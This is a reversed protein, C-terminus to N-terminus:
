RTLLVFKGAITTVPFDRYLSLRKSDGACELCVVACPQDPVPPWYRASANKVGTHVFLVKPNRERLLAQLPYELQFDTIDIGIIGCKVGTLQAVTQRYSAANDWQKMDAFYQTDRNAHLVSAAGRLPRVWNELAPLRAGDLLLLCVALQLITPTLLEEIYAALPSGLVFLPLMLRAMFPQWKLYGCYAVFGCILAAVYLARDYRHRRFAQFLAVCGLIALILLALRNPADAEHNANRPPRYTSGPWTTVPDNIDIGLARHASNVARFVFSNWRETRGGLQESANRLINSLTPKLGFNENRWRFVGDEQASDFGMIAGSLNYNRVYQPTNLALALCMAALGVSVFRRPTRAVAPALVAILIWPAFLYATAKTNLALGCATGLFIADIWRASAALRFAFYVAAVLWMAMFYDNKAGSSALIGSPLVACFLAAIWQGRNRAGLCRAIASVGIVCVASAGWQVFNIVRDGASLVYTHLMLYEALPQLMIQNLYPTPFFRVSAQEAWYVVRPMHYAMADASNPPSSAATVATLGLITVIGTACLLVVPDFTFAPLAIRFAQRVPPVSLAAAFVLIWTVILPGRTIDAFASLTETILLLAVGFIVVGRLFSDRAPV